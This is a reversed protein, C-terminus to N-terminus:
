RLWSQPNLSAGGKRVEFHLIPGKLSGTEGSLGITQGANVEAGTSVGIGSLHGYLTYYGDGHNLIVIQGYSGFDDSTYDVRGRAVARVATGVPTEIDIGNNMTVTGWRPHKEQGYRGVVDGRVPWDLQGQGKAFDGSYPVPAQGQGIKAKRERELRALLAGLTRATRELEAAAAEFSERQSKIGEVTTARERRLQDLQRNQSTTRKENKEVEQINRELRDQNAVVIEKRAMVDELLIRDQEAVMVLFDWRALLQAFSGTSLVFELERGVGYKYLNRLRKALKNQQMRLSTESRVLDARAVNLQRDLVKGRTQLNRLRRRTTSLERETRRLKVLEKQERGKLQTAAERKERAQRQIAELERRKAAELSDQAPAAAAFTLAALALLIAFCGRRPVVRRIV